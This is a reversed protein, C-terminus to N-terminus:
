NWGVACSYEASKDINWVEIWRDKKRRLGDRFCSLLGFLFRFGFFWHIRKAMGSDQGVKAFVCTGSNGIKVAFVTSCSVVSAAVGSSAFSTPTQKTCEWGVGFERTGVWIWLMRRLERMVLEWFLTLCSRPTVYTTQGNCSTFFPLTEDLFRGRTDCTLTTDTRSSTNKVNPDLNSTTLYECVRLNKRCNYVDMGHMKACASSSHLSSLIRLIGRRRFRWSKQDHMMDLSLSLLSFLWEEPELLFFCRELDVGLYLSASLGLFFRCRPAAVESTDIGLVMLNDMSFLPSSGVLSYFTKNQQSTRSIIIIHFCCTSPKVFAKDM